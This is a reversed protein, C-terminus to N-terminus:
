ARALGDVETEALFGGPGPNGRVLPPGGPPPVEAARLLAGDGGLVIVLEAGDAADPGPPVVTMGPCAIAGAEAETVRVTIGAACLRGIVLRASDLAEERGAHVMVLM